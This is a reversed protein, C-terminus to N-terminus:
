FVASIPSDFVKGSGGGSAVVRGYNCRLNTSVRVATDVGWDRTKKKFVGAKHLGDDLGENTLNEASYVLSWSLKAAGDSGTGLRLQICANKNRVQNLGWLAALPVGSLAAVKGVTFIRNIRTLNYAKLLAKKAEKEVQELKRNRAEEEGWDVLEQQLQEGLYSKSFAALATTITEKDHDLAFDIISNTTRNSLLLICARTEKGVGLSERSPTVWGFTTRGCTIGANGKGFVGEPSAGSPLTDPTEAVDIPSSGSAVELADKYCDGDTDTKGPDTGVLDTEYSDPLRDGDADGSSGVADESCDVAPEGDCPNDCRLNVTLAYRLTKGEGDTWTHTDTGEVAWGNPDQVPTFTPDFGYIGGDTGYWPERTRSSSAGGCSNTHIVEFDALDMGPGLHVVLPGDTLDESVEFEVLAQPDTGQTHGKEYWTCGYGDYTTNDVTDWYEATGYYLNNHSVHEEAGKELVADAAATTIDRQFVEGTTDDSSEYIGERTSSLTGYWNWNAFDVPDVQNFRRRGSRRSIPSRPGCCYGRCGATPDFSPGESSTGKPEVRGRPDRCSECRGGQGGRDRVGKVSTPAFRGSRYDNRPIELKPANHRCAVNTPCPRFGAASFRRVPWM